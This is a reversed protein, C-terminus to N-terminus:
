RLRFLTTTTAIATLAFKPLTAFAVPVYHPHRRDARRISKKRVQNRVKQSDSANTAALDDDEAQLPESILAAIQPGADSQLAPTEADSLTVMELKKAQQRAVIRDIDADWHRHAKATMGRVTFVAISAIAM